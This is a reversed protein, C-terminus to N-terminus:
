LSYFFNPHGFQILPLVTNHSIEAILMSIAFFSYNEKEPKCRNIIRICFCLLLILYHYAAKSRCKVGYQLSLSVFCKLAVATFKQSSDKYSILNDEYSLFAYVYTCRLKYISDNCWYLNTQERIQKRKM